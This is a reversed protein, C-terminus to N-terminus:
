FLKVPEWNYHCIYKMDIHQSTHFHGFHWERFKVTKHIEELFRSTIDDIRNYSTFFKFATIISTPATHTLIYDVENGHKELTELAHDCEAYNPIEEPWWNLGTIRYEKDISQAGGFIFLKKNRVQLVEGRKLHYITGNKDSYAVGVKAGHLSTEELKGLRDYNEHNGDIFCTTVKKATLWRAWYLEEKSWEREWLLGCDGLIILLDEKSCYQQGPWNASTLKSIDIPTHTDGCVFVSM